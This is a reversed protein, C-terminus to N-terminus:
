YDMMHQDINASTDNSIEIAVSKDEELTTDEFLDYSYQIM